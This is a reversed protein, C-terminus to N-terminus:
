RKLKSILEEELEQLLTQYEKKYGRRNIQNSFEIRNLIHLCEAYDECISRFFDSDAFLEEIQSGSEPFRKIVTDLTKNKSAM